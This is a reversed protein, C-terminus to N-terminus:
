ASEALKDKQLKMELILDDKHVIVFDDSMFTLMQEVEEMECTTGDPWLAVYNDDYKHM